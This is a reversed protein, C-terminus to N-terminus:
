DEYSIETYPGCKDAIEAVLTEMDGYSAFNKQSM